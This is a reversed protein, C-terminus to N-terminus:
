QAYLQEVLHFYHTSVAGARRAASRQAYNMSAVDEAHLSASAQM